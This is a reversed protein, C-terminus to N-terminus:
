VGVVVVQLVGGALAQTLAEVSRVHLAAPVHMFPAQWYVEFSEVHMNPQVPLAQLPSGQWPTVQVEGGGASQALVVVRRVYEDGPVHLPPEQVVYGDCVNGQLVGGAAMQM